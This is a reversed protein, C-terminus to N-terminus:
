QDQEPFYFAAIQLSFVVPSSNANESYDGSGSFSLNEIQIIRKMDELEQLFLTLEQHTPSQVSMSVVLKEVGTPTFTTDDQSTQDPSEEETQTEEFTSVGFSMNLILSNSALEAKELDLILQDVMPHPPLQTTLEKLKSQSPDEEKENIVEIRAYKERESEIQKELAIINKEVPVVWIRFGMFLLLGFIILSLLTIRIIQAIKM